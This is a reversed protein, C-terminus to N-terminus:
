EVRNAVYIFRKNSVFTVQLEAKSKRHTIRVSMRCCM